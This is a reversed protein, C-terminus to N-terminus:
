IGLGAQVGDVVAAARAAAGLEHCFGVLFRERREESMAGWAAAFRGGVRRGIDELEGPTMRADLLVTFKVVM